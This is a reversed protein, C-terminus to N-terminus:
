LVGAKPIVPNFPENEFYGKGNCYWCDRKVTKSELIRTNNCARCTLQFTGTGKCKRCQVARGSRLTFMGTGKCDFCKKPQYRRYLLVSFTVSQVCEPCFRKNDKEIKYGLGDCHKCREKYVDRFIDDIGEDLIPEESKLNEMALNKLIKYAGIVEITKEKGNGNNQDPHYELLLSRYNTKLQDYTFPWELGM